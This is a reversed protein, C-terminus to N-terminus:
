FSSLWSGDGGDSALLFLVAQRAAPQVYFLLFLAYVFLRFDLDGVSRIRQFPFYAALFEHRLRGM